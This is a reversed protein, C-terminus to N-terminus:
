RDQDAAPTWDYIVSTRLVVDQVSRNARNVAAWLLGVPFAVCFLARVIAKPFPLRSGRGTVVRVGMVTAGWSRGTTAWALALYPAAICFGIIPISWGLYSPWLFNKPDILFTVGIVVGYIGGLIVVVVIADLIAAICRTVVGARRGQYPWANEPIVTPHVPQTSM